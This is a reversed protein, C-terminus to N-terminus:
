WANNKTEKFADLMDKETKFDRPILIKNKVKKNYIELTLPVFVYTGNEQGRRKFVFHNPNRSIVDELEMVRDKVTDFWSIVKENFDVKLDIGILVSDDTDSSVYFVGDTIQILESNIM